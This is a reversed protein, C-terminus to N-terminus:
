RHPSDAIAHLRNELREKLEKRHLLQRIRTSLVRVQFDLRRPHVTASPSRRCLLSGSISANAVRNLPSVADEVFVGHGGALGGLDKLALFFAKGARRSSTCSGTVVDVFVLEGLGGPM